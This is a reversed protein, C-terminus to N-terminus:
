FCMKDMAIAKTMKGTVAFFARQISDHTERLLSFLLSNFISLRLIVQWV